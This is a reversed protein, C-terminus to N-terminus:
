GKQSLQRAGAAALYDPNSEALKQVTIAWLLRRVQERAAGPADYDGARTAAAMRRLLTDLDGEGYLEALAARCAALPADGAAAERAAIAMARAILAAERQREAPLLPALDRLAAQAFDLLAAGDPRDRM